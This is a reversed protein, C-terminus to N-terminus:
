AAHVYSDTDATAAVYVPRSRLRSVTLERDEEESFDGIESLHITKDLTTEPVLFNIPSDNGEYLFMKKLFGARVGRELEQEAAPEEIHHLKAWEAADMYRADRLEERIQDVRRRSLLRAIIEIPWTLWSIM